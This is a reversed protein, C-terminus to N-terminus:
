GDLEFATAQHLALSPNCITANSFAAVVGLPLAIVSRTSPVHSLIPMCDKGTPLLAIDLVKHPQHSPECAADFPLDRRIAVHKSTSTADRVCRDGPQTSIQRFLDSIPQLLGM